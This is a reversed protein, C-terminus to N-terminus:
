FLGYRLRRPYLVDNPFTQIEAANFKQCLMNLVAVARELPSDAQCLDQLQEIDSMRQKFAQQRDEMTELACFEVPGLTHLTLCQIDFVSGIASGPGVFEAYFPKQLILGSGERNALSLLQGSKLLQIPQNGKKEVSTSNLNDPNM